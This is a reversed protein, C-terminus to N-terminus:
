SFILKLLHKSIKFWILSRQLLHFNSNRIYLNQTILQITDVIINFLKLFSIIIVKTDFNILLNFLIM